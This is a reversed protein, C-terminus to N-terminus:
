LICCGSNNVNKDVACDNKENSGNEVLSMGVFVMDDGKQSDASSLETPEMKNREANIQEFVHDTLQQALTTANIEGSIGSILQQMAEEDLGADCYDMGNPYCGAQKKCPLYDVYGDSVGFVITDPPVVKDVQTIEWFEGVGGKAPHKYQDPIQATMEASVQENGGADGRLAVRSPMITSFNRTAPDFAFIATDGINFGILRFGDKTPFARLCALTARQGDPSSYDKTKIKIEDAVLDILGFMNTKLEDPSDYAAFLRTINKTGFHAARAIRQDVHRANANEREIQELRQAPTLRIDSDFADPSLHDHGGCGDACAIIHVDKGYRIHAADLVISAQAHQKHKNSTVFNSGAMLVRNDTLTNKQFFRGARFIESSNSNDYEVETYYIGLEESRGVGLVVLDKWSKIQASLQIEKKLLMRRGEKAEVKQKCLLPEMQLMCGIRSNVPMEQQMFYEQLLVVVLKAYKEDYSTSDFDKACSNLKEEYKKFYEWDADLYATILIKIEEVNRVAYSTARKKAM